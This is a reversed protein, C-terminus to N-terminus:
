DLLLSVLFRRKKEGQMREVVWLESPFGIMSGISTISHTRSFVIVSYGTNRDNMLFLKRCLTM